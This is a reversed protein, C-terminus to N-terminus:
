AGGGQEAATAEAAPLAPAVPQASRVLTLEEGEVWASWTWTEADDPKGLDDDVRVRRRAGGRDSFARVICRQGKDEGSLCVCIDGIALPEGNIDTPTM